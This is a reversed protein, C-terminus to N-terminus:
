FVETKLRVSFLFHACFLLTFYFQHCKEPRKLFVESTCDEFRIAYGVADGLRENMEFAVRKAVSMAAVRRPQTCAIMGNRSMGDEHLYQTLQTTKGSGTEGVVVVVQNERVLKLLSQRCAFIPLYERQERISKRTAFDSVAEDDKRQSSDADKQFGFARRLDVEGNDKLPADDKEEVSQVGMVSGIRTGALKWDKRQAKRREKEVRRLRVVASGNKAVAALDSQPDRLPVVPEFQRTFVIRGDLFPPLINTVLLKTRNAASLDEDLENNFDVREVVGSRLMRNTEWLENEKAIQAQRTTFRKKRVTGDKTNAQEGDDQRKFPDSNPEDVGDDLTYWERDIRAQEVQWDEDDETKHSRQSRSSERDVEKDRDRHQHERRSSNWEAKKWSPSPLPTYDYLRAKKHSGSPSPADRRARAIGLDDDDWGSASPTDVGSHLKPTAFDRRRSHREPEDGEDDQWSRFKNVVRKDRERERQRRERDFRERSNTSDQSPTDGPGGSHRWNKTYKPEAPKKFTDADSNSHKGGSSGYKDDADRESRRERRESDRGSRESRESKDHHRESKSGKESKKEDRDSKVKTSLKLEDESSAARKLAALRDLGLVSKTKLSSSDSESQKEERKMIILGGKQKEDTGSLRHVNAEDYSM